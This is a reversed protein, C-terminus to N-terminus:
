LGAAEAKEAEETAIAAAQQALMCKREAEAERAASDKLASRARKVQGKLQAQVGSLQGILRELEAREMNVVDPIIVEDDVDGAAVDAGRVDSMLATAEAQVASKAKQATKSAQAQLEHARASAVRAANQAVTQAEHMRAAAKAAQEKAAEQLAAFGFTSM